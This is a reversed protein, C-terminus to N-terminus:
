LVSQFMRSIEHYRKYGTLLKTIRDCKDNSFINIGLGGLHPILSLIEREIDSSQHEGTISPIFKHTIVEELYKKRSCWSYLSDNADHLKGLFASTYAAEPGIEAIKGLVETQGIM